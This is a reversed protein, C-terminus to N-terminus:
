APEEFFRMVFQWAEPRDVGRRDNFVATSLMDSSVSAFMM